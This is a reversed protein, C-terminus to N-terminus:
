KVQRNGTSEIMERKIWDIILAALEDKSRAFSHDDQFAVIRVNRAEAEVLARYFPLIKHEITVNVDDWGGILLMDRDALAAASLRLDYPTPNHLLEKIVAQGDFRIPGSPAELEAFIGDIRAAFAANRKYERAFEGYDDGAIAFIRKISPQNAAYALAMGGGFSVGGLILRNTDVKYKRVVEPQHLYTIAAQIDALANEFSARGESKGTGRFYFTLTNIGNQAM